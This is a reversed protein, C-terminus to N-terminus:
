DDTLPSRFSHLTFIFSFLLLTFLPSSFVYDCRILRIVLSFLSFVSDLILIWNLNFDIQVFKHFANSKEFRAIWNRSTSPPSYDVSEPARDFLSDLHVFSCDIRTFPFLGVKHGLTLSLRWLRTILPTVFLDLFTKDKHGSLNSQGTRRGLNSSSETLLSDCDFRKVTCVTQFQTLQDSERPRRMCRISRWEVM